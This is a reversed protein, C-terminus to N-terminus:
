GTDNTRRKKSRGERPVQLNWREPGEQKNLTMAIWNATEAKLSDSYYLSEGLRYGVIASKPKGGDDYHLVLAMSRKLTQSGMNDGLCRKARDNFKQNTTAKVKFVSCEGFTATDPLEVLPSKSGTIKKWCVATQEKPEDVELTNFGLMETNRGNIGKNALIKTFEKSAMAELGPFNIKEIDRQSSMETASEDSSNRTPSTVINTKRGRSPTMITPYTGTEVGEEESDIVGRKRKKLSKKEPSDTDKADKTGRRLERGESIPQLSAKTSAPAQKPAVNKSSSAPAKPEFGVKLARSRTGASM